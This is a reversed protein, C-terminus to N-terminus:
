GHCQGTSAESTAEPIESKRMEDLEVRLRDIEAREEAILKIRAAIETERGAIEASVKERAEFDTEGMPKSRSYFRHGKKSGSMYVYEYLLGNDLQKTKGTYIMEM